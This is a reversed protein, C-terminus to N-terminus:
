QAPGVEEQLLVLSRPGLTWNGGAAVRTGLPTEPDTSLAVAGAAVWPNSILKIEQAQLTSNLWLMFSSDRQQEGHPGPSRLPKGSVFM